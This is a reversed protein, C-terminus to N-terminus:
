SRRPPMFEFIVTYRKKGHLQIQPIHWNGANLRNMGHLGDTEASQEPSISLAVLLLVITESLVALLNSRPSMTAVMAMMDHSTEM